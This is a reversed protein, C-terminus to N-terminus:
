VCSNLYYNKNNVEITSVYGDKCKMCKYVKTGSISFEGYYECNAIFVSTTSDSQLGCKVIEPFNKVPISVM